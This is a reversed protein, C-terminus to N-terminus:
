PRKLQSRYDIEIYICTERLNKHQGYFVKSPSSTLAKTKVSIWSEKNQVKQIEVMVEDDSTCILCVHFRSQLARLSICSQYESKKM